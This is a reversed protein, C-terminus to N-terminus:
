QALPQSSLHEVMDLRLGKEKCYLPLKYSYRHVFNGVPEWTEEGVPAGEWKTLFQPKGRIFRHGLIRDVKWEGLELAEKADTRPGFHFLEVKDGTVFPKLRDTHVSHMVGPQIEVEYSAAGTRRVLPVPGVWWTDVKAAAMGSKPRLVWVWDGPQYVLPEKRAANIRAAEKRHEETLKTAVLGSLIEVRDFFQRAGECEREVYAPCGALFRERGFMIEFPCYGSEGPTDHYARLIRPLAEVWNIQDEVWIKRM